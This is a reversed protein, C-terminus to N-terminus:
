PPAGGMKANKERYNEGLNQKKKNGKIKTKSTKNEKNEHGQPM